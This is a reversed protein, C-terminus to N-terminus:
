NSPSMLILGAYEQQVQECLSLSSREAKKFFISNKASEKDDGILKDVPTSSELDAFSYDTMNKLCKDAKSWISNFFAHYLASPANSSPLATLTSLMLLPFVAGAIILFLQSAIVGITLIGGGFLCAGALLLLRSRWLDLSKKESELTPYFYPSNSHKIQKYSSVFGSRLSRINQSIDATNNQISLLIPNIKESLASSLKQTDDLSNKSQIKQELKIWYILQDTLHSMYQLALQADYDENAENGKENKLVNVLAQKYRKLYNQLREHDLVITQSKVDSPAHM